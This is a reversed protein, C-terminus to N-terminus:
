ALPDIGIPDVAGLTSAAETCSFDKRAIGGALERASLTWLETM